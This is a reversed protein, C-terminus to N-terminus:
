GVPRLWLYKNRRFTIYILDLFPPVNNGCGFKLVQGQLIEFDVEPSGCWDIKLRLRHKGAEIDLGIQEGKNIKGVEKGDLEIKYARVADKFGGERKIEIRAM